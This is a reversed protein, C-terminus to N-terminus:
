NAGNSFWEIILGSTIPTIGSILIDVGYGKTLPYVGAATHRSVIDRIQSQTFIGNMTNSLISVPLEVAYSANGPYPIGDWTGIDWNWQTQPAQSLGNSLESEIIGGGRVRADIKGLDSVHQAESVSVDGLLLFDTPSGSVETIFEDTFVLHPNGSPLFDPYFDYYL